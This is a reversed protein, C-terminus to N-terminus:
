SELCLQVSGAGEPNDMLEDITIQLTRMQRADHIYMWPEDRREKQQLCTSVLCTQHPFAILHVVICNRNFHEMQATAPPVQDGLLTNKM